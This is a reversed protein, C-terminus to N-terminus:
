AAMNSGCVAASNDNSSITENHSSKISACPLQIGVNSYCSHISYDLLIFFYQHKRLLTAFVSTKKNIGDIQQEGTLCCNVFHNIENQFSNRFNFGPYDIQPTSNFIPNNEEHVIVLTPDIEAGGKDGFITASSQDQKAHLTFSIDIMLSADNM